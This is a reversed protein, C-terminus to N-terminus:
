GYLNPCFVSVLCFNVYYLCLVIHVLSSCFGHKKFILANKKMQPSKYSKLLLLLGVKNFAKYLGRSTYIVEAKRHNYYLRGSM